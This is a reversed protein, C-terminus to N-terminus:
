RRRRKGGGQPKPQETRPPRLTAIASEIASLRDLMLQQGQEQAKLALEGKAIQLNGMIQQIKAEDLGIKAMAGRLQLQFEPSMAQEQSKKALAEDDYVPSEKGVQMAQWIQELLERVDVQSVALPSALVINLFQTLKALLVEQAIYASTGTPRVDMFNAKGWAKIAAWKIAMEENFMRAVVEPELYQLDWEILEQIHRDVWLKDINQMVEKLPYASAGMILSIGHATKNLNRSDSGQTYKSIGTDEDSFQLAREIATEWGETVDNFVVQRLAKEAEENTVGPARRMVKGGYMRFDEDPAYKSRDIDWIGLLALGKGEIFLRFAANIVRQAAANNEAVGVGDVEDDGDEYYCRYIPRRKWPSVQARCVVQGVMVANIEVTRLEDDEPSAEALDAKIEADPWDELASRPVRGFFKICAYRGDTRTFQINARADHLLKSGHEMLWGDQSQKLAEDIFRYGGQEKWDEIEAPQKYKVVFVGRGIDSGMAEPDPYVDVVRDYLFYPEDYTFTEEDLKYGNGGAANRVRTLTKKRTFPGSTYGTGYICLGNVGRSMMQPYEMDTLQRTLIDEFADALERVSVDTESIDFPMKAQGFLSDMIRSRATRIKSRTLGVFLKRAKRARPAGSGKTDDDRVIRMYDQYNEVYRLEQDHRADAFERLLKNLYLALRNGVDASVDQPIDIKEAPTSM